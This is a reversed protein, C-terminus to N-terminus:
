SDGLSSALYASVQARGRACLTLRPPLVQPQMKILEQPLEPSDQLRLLM